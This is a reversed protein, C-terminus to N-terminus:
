RYTATASGLRVCKGKLVNFTVAASPLVSFLLYFRTEETGVGTMRSVRRPLLCRDMALLFTAASSLVSFLFPSALAGKSIKWRSRDKLNRHRLLPDKSPDMSRLFPYRVTGLTLGTFLRRPPWGRPVVVVTITTAWLFPTAPSDGARYSRSPRSRSGPRFILDTIM